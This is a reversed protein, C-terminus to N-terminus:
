IMTIEDINQKLGPKLFTYYGITVVTLVFIVSYVFVLM